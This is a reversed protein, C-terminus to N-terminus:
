KKMYEIIKQAAIKQLEQQKSVPLKRLEDRDQLGNEKAVNFMLTGFSVVAVTKKHDKIVKAMEVLLSTKGVGPIGVM